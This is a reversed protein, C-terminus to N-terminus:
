ERAGINAGMMVPDNTFLRGRHTRRLSPAMRSSAHRGTEPDGVDFRDKMPM